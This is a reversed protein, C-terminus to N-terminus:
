NVNRIRRKNRKNGDGMYVLDRGWAHETHHDKRRIGARPLAELAHTVVEVAAHRTLADGRGGETAEENANAHGNSARYPALWTPSELLIVCTQLKDLKDAGLVACQGIDWSIIWEAM